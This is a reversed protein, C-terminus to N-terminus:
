LASVKIFNLVQHRLETDLGITARGLASWSCGGYIYIYSKIYHTYTIQKM